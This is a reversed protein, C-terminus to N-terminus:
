IKVEAIHPRHDSAIIEPIDASAVEIDPSVFIYDIKIEPKDSPYSLKERDFLTATDRMKEYIPALVEDDPSTNFDGMLICKEAELHSLLTEVALEQEDPNLGFHAVLVTLGGELRLKLIIRSEYWKDGTKETPDPIKIVKSELIKYKSIFADGYSNGNVEIAKAFSYNSLGTLESIIKVQSPYDPGDNYMENLGVIDPSFSNITRAMIEYDIKQTLFNKCHQTNFSMIKM